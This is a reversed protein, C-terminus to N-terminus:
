APRLSQLVTELAPALADQFVWCAAGLSAGVAVLAVLANAGFGAAIVNLHPLTRGALALILTALLLAVLAPAAARIGLSFSEALVSTMAATITQPAAGQGVPLRAFTDLLAELLRRHGGITLFVALTALGLLKSFAPVSAGASTDFVEALQMGSTQSVLRGALQAAAFLVLVGLGLSLGVLAEGGALVLLEVPADPLAARKSLELPAVLVALLVALGVRL